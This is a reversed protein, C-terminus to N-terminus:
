RAAEFPEEDEIKPEDLDDDVVVMKKDPQSEGYFDPLQKKENSKPKM